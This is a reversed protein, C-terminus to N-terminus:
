VLNVVFDVDEVVLNEGFVSIVFVRGQISSKLDQSCTFDCMNLM